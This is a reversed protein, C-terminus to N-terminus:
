SSFRCCYTYIRVLRDVASSGCTWGNGDPRTTLLDDDGSVGAYVACGGSILTYGSPCDLTGSQSGSEWSNIVCDSGLGDGICGNTDCVTGTAEVNGSVELTDSTAPSGIGVSTDSVYLAGMQTHGHVDPSVQAVVYVTGVSFVLFLVFFLVHRNEITIKVSM